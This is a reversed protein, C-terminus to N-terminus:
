KAEIRVWDGPQAPIIRGNCALDDAHDWQILEEIYIVVRKGNANGIFVPITGKDNEIFAFGKIEQTSEGRSFEINM